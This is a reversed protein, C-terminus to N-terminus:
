GNVNHICGRIPAIAAPQQTNTLGDSAQVYISFNNTSKNEFYKSESHILIM